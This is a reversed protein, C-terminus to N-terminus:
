CDGRSRCNRGNRSMLVLGFIIPLLAFGGLTYTIQDFYM